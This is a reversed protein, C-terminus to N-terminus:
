DNCKRSLSVTIYDCIPRVIITGVVNLTDKLQFMSFNEIKGDLYNNQICNAEKIFAKLLNADDVLSAVNDVLTDRIQM